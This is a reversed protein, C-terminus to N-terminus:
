IYGRAWYCNKGRECVGKPDLSMALPNRKISALFSVRPLPPPPPSSPPFDVVALYLSPLPVNELWSGRPPCFTWISCRRDRREERRIHKMGKQKSMEKEVWQITLDQNCNSLSFLFWSGGSRQCRWLYLFVGQLTSMAPVLLCYPLFPLFAMEEDFSAGSEQQPRVSAKLLM